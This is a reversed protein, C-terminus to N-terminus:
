YLPEMMAGLKLTWCVNYSNLHLITLEYWLHKGRKHLLLFFQIHCDIAQHKIRNWGIFLPRILRGNFKSLFDHFETALNIPLGDAIMESARDRYKALLVSENRTPIDVTNSDYEPKYESQLSGPWPCEAEIRWYPFMMPSAYLSLYPPQKSNWLSCRRLDDEFSLPFLFSYMFQRLISHQKSLTEGWKFM